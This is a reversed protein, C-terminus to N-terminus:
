ETIANSDVLFFWKASLTWRRGVIAMKFGFLNKGCEEKITEWRFFFCIGNIETGNASGVVLRLLRLFLEKSGEELVNCGDHRMLSKIDPSAFFLDGVLGELKIHEGPIGDM